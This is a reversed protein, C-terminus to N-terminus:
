SGSLVSSLGKNTSVQTCCQLELLSEHMSVTADAGWHHLNALKM